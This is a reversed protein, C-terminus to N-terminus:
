ILEGLTDSIKPDYEGDGTDEG